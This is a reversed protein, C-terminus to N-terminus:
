LQHLESVVDQEILSEITTYCSLLKVFNAAIVENKTLM